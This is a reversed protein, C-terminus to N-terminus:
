SSTIEGGRGPTPLSGPRVLTLALTFVALTVVGALGTLGILLPHGGAVVVPILAGLANIAGHFLAAPWATGTRDRLLGALPSLSLTFLVMMGVGLWPFGWYGTGYNHGDAIVPTHWLGWVIGTFLSARWFGAPRILSWLYGRWGAEEGIAFFTNIAGGFVTALVFTLWIPPLGDLTAQDVPLSRQMAMAATGEAFSRPSAGPVPLSLMWAVLVIAVPTFWAVLWWLNLRLPWLALMSLLRGRDFLLGTVLGAIIPGFMFLAYIAIAASGGALPRLVIFQGWSLGFALALFVILRKRDQALM